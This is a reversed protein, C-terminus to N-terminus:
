LMRQTHANLMITSKPNYRVAADIGTFRLNASFNRAKEYEENMEMIYLTDLSDIITAGIEANGFIGGNQGTQSIPKLENQGWAWRSYDDWADQMM